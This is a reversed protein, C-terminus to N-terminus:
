LLRCRVARGQLRGEAHQGPEEAPLEGQQGEWVSGQILCYYTLM